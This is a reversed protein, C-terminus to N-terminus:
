KEATLYLAPRFGVYDYNFSLGRDGRYSVPKNAGEYSTYHGGRVVCKDTSLVETTYEFLNGALDFIHNAETEAYYGTNVLSTNNPELTDDKYNGWSSSDVVIESATKEGTEYLWGLTRDWAAGTLLSSAFNKETVISYMNQTNLLATSQTIWNWLKGNELRSSDNAVTSVKSAVNGNEYSAEYRGIYFGGNANVEETYDEEKESYDKLNSDFLAAALTDNASSSYMDLFYERISSYGSEELTPQGQAQMLDNFFNEVSDYGETVAQEELQRITEEAVREIEEKIAEIIEDISNYGQTIMELDKFTDVAYLSHVGLMTRKEESATTVTLVYVGNITPTVNENSYSTGLNDTGSLEINDGYPDTLTISTINEKSTVNIKIKQERDVPVWVFQNGQLETSDAGKREDASNDSIVIGEDITGGVYYFGTPINNALVEEQTVETGEITMTAIINSITPGTINGNSDITYERGSEFIVTLTGDGNDTVTATYGNKQLEEQLEKASVGTGNTDAMVGSYALSIAEKEEAIETQEAAESARTLIGNEGTLTAISVGVLILLVIITIVLAILTIGKDTRKFNKFNM